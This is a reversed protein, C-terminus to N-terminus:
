ERVENGSLAQEVIIIGKLQKTSTRKTEIQWFKKRKARDRQTAQLTIHLTLLLYSFALKAFSSFFIKGVVERNSQKGRVGMKSQRREEARARLAAPDQVFNNRGNQM